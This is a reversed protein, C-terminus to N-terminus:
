KWRCLIIHGQRWKTLLLCGFVILVEQCLIQCFTLIFICCVLVSIKKFWFQYSNVSQQNQNIWILIIIRFPIIKRFTKNLILRWWWRFFGKHGVWQNQYLVINLFLFTLLLVLHLNYLLINTLNHIYWFDNYILLLQNLCLFLILNQDSLLKAFLIQQVILFVLYCDLAVPVPIILTHKNFFWRFSTLIKFNEWPLTVTM